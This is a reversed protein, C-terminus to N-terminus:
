ATGLYRQTPTASTIGPSRLYEPMQFTVPAQTPATFQTYETLPAPTYPNVPQSLDLAPFVCSASEADYVYGEPCTPTVPAVPDVPAVPAVPGGGGDNPNVPVTTGPGAAPPPNLSPDSPDLFKNVTNTVGNVFAGLIGGKSVYAAVGTADRGSGLPTIGLSAGINDKDNYTGERQQKKTQLGPGARGPGGGDAWDTADM